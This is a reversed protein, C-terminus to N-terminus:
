RHETNRFQHLYNHQFTCVTERCQLKVYTNLNGNILNAANALIFKGDSNKSNEKKVNLVSNRKLPPATLCARMYLLVDIKYSLKIKEYCVFQLISTVIPFCLAFYCVWIIPNPLKKKELALGM